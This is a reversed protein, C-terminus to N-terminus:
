NLVTYSMPLGEVEYGSMWEAVAGGHSGSQSGADSWVMGVRSLASWVAPVTDVPVHDDGSHVRMAVMENSRHPNRDIVDAYISFTSSSGASVVVGPRSFRVIVYGDAPVFRVTGLSTTSGYETIDFSAFPLVVGTTLIDFTMHSVIIDGNDDAEITFRYIEQPVGTDVVLSSGLSTDEAVIPVSRYVYTVNSTVVDDLDSEDMVAGSTRAIASFVGYDDSTNLAFYMEDDSDLSGGDLAHQALDVYLEMVVYDAEPVMAGLGTFVANTGSVSVEMDGDLVDPSDLDTPYLLRMSDINDVLDAAATSSGAEDTVTFVMEDVEWDEDVATLKFKGVLLDDTDAAVIQDDVPDSTYEVVSLTGSEVVTMVVNPSDEMGNANDGDAEFTNGEEDEVTIDFSADDIDVYIITISFVM